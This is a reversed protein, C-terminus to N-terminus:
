RKRRRRLRRIQYRATHLAEIMDRPLPAPTAFMQDVLLDAMLPATQFGRSGMATMAYLGPLYAAPGYQSERRGHHLDAYQTEFYDADQVAGVVPLHDAITARLGARGPSGTLPKLEALAPSLSRVDNLIEAEDEDRLARWRGEEMMGAPGNFSAGSVHFCGDPRAVAPSLYRGFSLGVKLARSAESAALHVVQGRKANLPLEGHPWLDKAFPGNALIVASVERLVAGDARRLLRGNATKELAAIAVQEIVPVDRACADLVAGPKVGGGHPFWLGPGALPIGALDSVAGGSVSQMASAPLREEAVLRDFRVAEGEDKALQLVGRPGVWSEEGGKALQDYYRCAHLYATANFRGDLSDAATLRPQILGVRNGSGVAGPTEREYVTVDVGVQRLRRALALGAIGGGIVAVPGERLLGQPPAFWPRGTYAHPEGEYTGRLCERKHGFGPAKQMAFGADALDRRVQGAATFTALRAGPSSLRALQQFVGPRWMEPNRSPAFGDLYWADVRGEVQSLMDEVEGFLLTLTVRDGEFSLRHFGPHIEPYADVLEETLKSLETWVSLAKQLADRSLPYGEVSVYSLRSGPAARKRWEAWTALFNLGTGFGTEGITICDRGQWVDPAGIGDLFVYRTEALGDRPSFYIDGFQRSEPTRDDRWDLDANELRAM